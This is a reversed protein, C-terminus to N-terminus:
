EEECKYRTYILHDKKFFRHPVADLCQFLFIILAEIVAPM